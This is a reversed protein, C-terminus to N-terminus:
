PKKKKQTGYSTEIKAGIMELMQKVDAAHAGDPALQLYKNLTEATGDPPIYKGQADMKGAGMLLSGKIFYADAKTPDAAIAKDCAALAGETNGTNYQTACINFYAVGPNPSMEAAKTYAAIAEPSKKLKLYANGQATLMQGLSAKAKVPDSDPNKPDKPANGSVMGQALEIGKGYSDVAEDYKNLGAQSDGLAQYFQYRTGDIAIMQKLVPEAAEWNKANLAIQAQSILPNISNAKANQEKAREIEEKSMKPGSGTTKSLQALDVNITDAAEDGTLHKNSEYLTEGSASIIQLHYTTTPLGLIIFNGGSDTQTKFSRGTSPDSFVVTAGAVPKKGDTVQGIGKSTQSWAAFPGLAFMAALLAIYIAKTRM